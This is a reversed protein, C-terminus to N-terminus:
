MGEYMAVLANFGSQQGQAEARGLPQQVLPDGGPGDDIPAQDGQSAGRGLGQPVGVQAHDRRLPPPAPPRSAALWAAAIVDADAKSHIVVRRM